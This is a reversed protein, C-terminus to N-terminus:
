HAIRDAVADQGTFVYLALPKDRGNIFEIAADPGDTKLVPLIPGFIEQSMVPSDPSVDKLVTPAIFLDDVDGVGGIVPEGSGLLGM